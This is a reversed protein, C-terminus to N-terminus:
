VHGGERKIREIQARRDAESELRRDIYAVADAVTKLADMDEDPIEIGFEEEASMVLEIDDLSDCGLDDRFSASTTVEELDVGLQDIILSTITELTSKGPQTM